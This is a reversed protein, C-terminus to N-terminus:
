LAKELLAKFERWPVTESNKLADVAMANAKRKWYDFENQSMIKLQNTEKQSTQNKNAARPTM